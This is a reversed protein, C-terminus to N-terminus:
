HNRSLERRLLGYRNFSTKVTFLLTLGVNLAICAFIAIMIAIQYKIAVLPGSGGLIQGTMMGPLFVIGLTSMSALTPMLASRMADRVYPRLAEFQTAGLALRYSYQSAEKRLNGYFHSVGVIAGRLSNGLLMGGIAIAYKAELVGSLDIIMLNFYFLVFGLTLLLSLGVPVVFRKFRLQSGRIVSHTAFAVMVILWIATVLPNNWRFLYKLFYGVLALQIGMRVVAVLTNRFLGLKLVLGVGVPLALLLFCFFLSLASIDPAGM